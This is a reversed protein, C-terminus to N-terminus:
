PDQRANESRAQRQRQHHNELRFQAYPQRLQTAMRKEGGEGLKLPHVEQVIEALCHALKGILPEAGQEGKLPTDAHLGNFIGAHLQVGNKGRFQGQSNKM